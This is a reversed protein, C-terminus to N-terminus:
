EVTTDDEQVWDEDKVLGRKKLVVALRGLAARMAEFDNRMHAENRDIRHRLREVSDLETQDGLIVESGDLEETGSELSKEWTRSQELMHKKGLTDNTGGFSVILTPSVPVLCVLKGSYKRALAGAVLSFVTWMVSLMAFTSVFVSTVASGLPKLRPVSRLYELPPVRTSNQFFEVDRQWQAMLTADSIWIRSDYAAYGTHLGFDIITSNFMEPSNYIQNDLIAGLDLRVLHYFAQILNEYVTSLLSPSINRFASQGLADTFQIPPRGPADAVVFQPPNSSCPSERLSSGNELPNGALVADCDCCPHVTFSIHVPTNPQIGPGNRTRPECLIDFDDSMAAPVSRLSIEGNLLLIEGDPLFVGGNSPFGSWTLYFLSPMYCAVIGSVQVQAYRVKLESQTVRLEVTINAVDCSDSLPNNLVFIVINAQNLLQPAFSDPSNRLISPVLSNLFIPPLTDNPQYTVEQVINYASLPVLHHILTLVVPTTWRWPYPREETFGLRFSKIANFLSAMNM